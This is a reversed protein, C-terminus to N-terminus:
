FDETNSCDPYKTCGLFDGYSGSRRVMVNGCESCFNVIDEGEAMLSDIKKALNKRWTKIRLTKKRGIKLHNKENHVVVLRIADSGKERTRSTHKDITSYLWLALEDNEPAFQASRYVIEGADADRVPGWYEPRDKLFQEFEEQTIHTFRKSM